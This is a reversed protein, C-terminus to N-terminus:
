RLTSVRVWDVLLVPESSSVNDHDSGTAQSEVQLALWMPVHPVAEGTARGWEQGDYLLSVHSETWEVAITHDATVDVYADMSVRQRAESSDRYHIFGQIHQRTGDFSEAFDIEPPWQEDQPWLLLHYSFTRSPLARLRVEWKGYTSPYRWLSVAGAKLGSDTLGGSLVLRAGEVSVFDSDWRVNLDSSPQGTYKEWESSLETGPFNDFFIEQWNKASEAEAIGDVPPSSCSSAYSAAGLLPLGGVFRLLKRRNFTM